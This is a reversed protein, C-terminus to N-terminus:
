NFLNVIDTYWKYMDIDAYNMFYDSLKVQIEENIMNLVGFIILINEVEDQMIKMIEDPTVNNVDYKNKYGHLPINQIKRRYEPQLDGIIKKYERIYHNKAFVYIKPNDKHELLKEPTYLMINHFNGYKDCIPKYKTMDTSCNCDEGYTIDFLVREQIYKRYENSRVSLESYIENFIETLPEGTYRQVVLQTNTRIAVNTIGLLKRNYDVIDSIVIIEIRNDYSAWINLGAFNNFNFDFNKSAFYVHLFEICHAFQPDIHIMRISKKTNNIIDMMFVPIIQDINSVFDNLVTTRPASGIGFYTYEKPKEKMREVLPRWFSAM